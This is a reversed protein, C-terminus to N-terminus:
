VKMGKATKSLVKLLQQDDKIKKLKIDKFKKNIWKEVKPWEKIAKVDGVQLMQKFPRIPNDSDALSLTDPFVMPIVNDLANWMRRFSPSMSDETINMEERVMERLRNEIVNNIVSSPVKVKKRGIERKDDIPFDKM